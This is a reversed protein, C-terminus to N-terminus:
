STRTDYHYVLPVERDDIICKTVKLNCWCEDGSFHGQGDCDVFADMLILEEGIYYPKMSIHTIKSM